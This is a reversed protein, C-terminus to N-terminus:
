STSEKKNHGMVQLVLLYPHHFVLDDDRTSPDIEVAPQIDLIIGITGPPLCSNRADARVVVPLGIHARMQELTFDERHFDLSAHIGKSEDCYASCPRM